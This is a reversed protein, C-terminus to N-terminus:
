DARDEGDKKDNEEDASEAPAEAAIAVAETMGPGTYEACQQNDHDDQHQKTANSPLGIRYSKM